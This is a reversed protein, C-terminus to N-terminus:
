VKKGRFFGVKRFFGNRYLYLGMLGTVLIEVLLVVWAAGVAGFSAAAPYILILATLGAIGLIYNFAKVRKNPIMVQVGFVNSLGVILPVMSLWRLVDAAQHFESGGLINIIWDALIFIGLGSIGAVGVVVLLSTKLLSQAAGADHAYLHSMRPFIAQSVPALMSQAVSRVKNALSYIGVAAAGSVIGLILPILNTYLSIWGRSLFLGWGDRFASRVDRWAPWSPIVVKQRFILYLCLVGSVVGGLSQIAMTLVMDDPSHIFIFIPILLLVRTFLQILAVERLKELGQMLWVPFLVQGLLVATGVAYLPWVDRMMPTVSVIIALLPISLCLLIWQAAWTANFIKSVAVPNSREEAIQRVASWSFGYDVLLIFYLFVVQALAIEGWADIGLTRTLYPVTLLPVIYNAIQVSGLAAINHRLRPTKM